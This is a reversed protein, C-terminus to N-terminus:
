QLRLSKLWNYIRGKGINYGWEGTIMFNIPLSIFMLFWVLMGIPLTLRILPKVATKTVTYFEIRMDHFRNSMEEKEVNKLEPFNKYFEPIHNMYGHTSVRKLKRYIM